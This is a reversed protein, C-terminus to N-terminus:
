RASLSGSRSTCSRRSSAGRRRSPSSRASSRSATPAHLQADQVILDSDTLMGVVKNEGDVVPGGSVNADILRQMGDTVSEERTFSVVNTTMVDRVSTPM